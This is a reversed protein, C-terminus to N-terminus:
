ASSNNRRIDVRGADWRFPANQRLARIASIYDRNLEFADYQLTRLDDIAFDNKGKVPLPDLSQGYGLLYQMWRNAMSRDVKLEPRRFVRKDQRVDRSGGIDRVVM